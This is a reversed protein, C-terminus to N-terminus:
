LFEFNLPMSRFTGTLLSEATIKQPFLRKTYSNLDLEKPVELFQNIQDISYRNAHLVAEKLHIPRLKSMDIHSGKGTQELLEFWDYKGAYCRNKNKQEKSTRLSYVGSSLIVAEDWAERRIEGMVKKGTIPIDVKALSLIGDTQVSLLNESGTMEILRMMHVRTSGTIYSAFIPNFLNGAKGDIVQCFKGYGSNMVKKLFEDLLRNKYLWEMQSRMFENSTSIYFCSELIKMDYKDKLYRYEQLTLWTEFKGVPAVSLGKYKVFLLPLFDNVPVDVSVRLAGYYAKEIDNTKEKITRLQCMYFPYASNIDYDYVREFSGKRVMEFWGGKYSEIFINIDERKLENITPIRCNKRLYIEAFKGKSYWQKTQIKYKGLKEKILKALEKVLVCDNICYAVSKNKDKKWENEFDSAKGTKGKGLYKQGANELATEYFLYLDFWRWTRKRYKITLCKHPIYSIRYGHYELENEIGFRQIRGKDFEKIM